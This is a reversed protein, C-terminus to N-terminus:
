LFKLTTALRFQLIEEWKLKNLIFNGIKPLLTFDQLSFKQWSQNATILKGKNVFYLNKCIQNQRLLIKNKVLDITFISEKLKKLTSNSLTSYSNLYQIFKEM